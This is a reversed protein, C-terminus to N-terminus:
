LWDISLQLFSDAIWEVSLCRFDWFILPLFQFLVIRMVNLASSYILLSMSKVCAPKYNPITFLLYNIIPNINIDVLHLNIVHSTKSSLNLYLLMILACRKLKLNLKQIRIYHLILVDINTRLRLLPPLLNRIIRLQQWLSLNDSFLFQFQIVYHKPHILHALNWKIILMKTARLHRNM